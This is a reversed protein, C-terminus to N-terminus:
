SPCRVVNESKFCVPILWQGFLEHFLAGNLSAALGAPIATVEGGICDSVTFDTPALSTAPSFLSVKYIPTNGSTNKAINLTGSINLPSSWATNIRLTCAIGYITTPIGTVTVASMTASFPYMASGSASPAVM